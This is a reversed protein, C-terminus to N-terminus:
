MGSFHNLAIQTCNRLESGSIERCSASFVSASTCWAMCRGTTCRIEDARRAGRLGQKKCCTSERSVRPRGCCIGAAAASAGPSIRRRPRSPQRLPRLPRGRKPAELGGPCAAKGGPHAQAHAMCDIWARVKWIHFSDKWVMSCALLIKM